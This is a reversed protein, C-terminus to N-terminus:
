ERWRNISFRVLAMVVIIAGFAVVTILLVNFFIETYHVVPVNQPTAEKHGLFGKAFEVGAGQHCQECTKALNEIGAVPSNPISVSQIDHTGHCNTCTAKDLQTIEYTGLQIAKGHFSRMYSEYVKEVIGYSKMLEVNSHCKACTGAINKTYAPAGYELVRIVSHPSGVPSHCDVCTAVDPNGKALQKGHVSELHLKYEYKHCSGCKEALSLKTLPSDVKHPDSTHCTTCDTYRHAATNVGQENVFLSIKKGGPGTKTMNPNGHCSLCKNEDLANVRSSVFIFAISSTLALGIAVIIFSRQIKLINAEKINTARQFVIFPRHLQLSV